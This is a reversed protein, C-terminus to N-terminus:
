YIRVTHMRVSSSFYSIFAQNGFGNLQIHAIKVHLRLGVMPEFENDIIGMEGLNIYASCLAQRVLSQYRILM